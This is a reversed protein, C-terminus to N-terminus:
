EKRSGQAVANFIRRTQLKGSLEYIIRYYGINDPAIMPDSVRKEM